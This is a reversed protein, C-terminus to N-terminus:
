QFEIKFTIRELNSLLFAMVRHQGNTLRYNQCFQIAPCKETKFLGYDMHRKYSYVTPWNLDRQTPHMNKLVEIATQKTLIIKESM